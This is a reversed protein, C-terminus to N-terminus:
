PASIGPNTIPFPASAPLLKASNGDHVSNIVHSVKMLGNLAGTTVKQKFNKLPSLIANKIQMQNNQNANGDTAKPIRLLWDDFWQLTHFIAVTSEGQWQEFLVKTCYGVCLGKDFGRSASKAASAQPKRTGKNYGASYGDAYAYEEEPTTGVFGRGERFGALHASEARYGASKGAQRAQEDDSGDSFAAPYAKAAAKRAKAPSVKVRNSDKACERGFGAM